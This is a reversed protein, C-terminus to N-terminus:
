YHIDVKTGIEAWDYVLRAAETSLIICGYSARQGLLGGWMVTGDPRIPLAHIGNEINQVYYIGLWYPMKLNWVSSYAMPIKDLVEYHGTATDRGPLGTSVPFSYILTDGEYTWLHQQSIDIEIRKPPFLIYMVRDYHERAVADDPALALAAELDARAKQLKNQEQWGIGRQRYAVSLLRALEPDDTFRQRGASLGEIAADWDGQASAGDIAAQGQRRYAEALRDGLDAYEPFQGFAPLWAEIAAPWESRSFAAAGGLYARTVQQWLGAGADGPVWAVAQDFQALAEEFHGGDVLSQGYRLHAVPAWALVLEGDPDVGQMIGVIDLARQWDQGDLAAELQPVFRAAIEAPALTPTPPAAPVAPPLLRALSADVPGWILLAALLLAAVLVLALLIPVRSATGHRVPPGDRLRPAPPPSVQVQPHAPRQAAAPRKEAPRLAPHTPDLARAQDLYAQREAPSRALHALELNADACAPDAELASHFLRRAEEVAGGRALARGAQLRLRAEHRGDGATRFRHLGTKDSLDM